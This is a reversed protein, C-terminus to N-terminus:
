KFTWSYLKKFSQNSQVYLKLSAALEDIKREHTIIM